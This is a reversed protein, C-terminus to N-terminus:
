VYLHHFRGRRVIKPHLIANKYIDYEACRKSRFDLPSLAVIQFRLWKSHESSSLSKASKAWFPSSFRKCKWLSAAVCSLIFFCVQVKIIADLELSWSNGECRKVFESYLGGGSLKRRFHSWVCTVMCYGKQRNTPYLDHRQTSIQFWDWHPFGCIKNRRFSSNKKLTLRKSYISCRVM